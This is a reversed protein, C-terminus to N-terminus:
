EHGAAEASRAPNRRRKVTTLTMVGTAEQGLQPQIRDSTLERRRSTAAVHSTYTPILAPSIPPFPGGNKPVQLATGAQWYFQRSAHAITFANINRAITPTARVALGDEDDAWTLLLALKPSVPFRMETSALLGSNLPWSRPSAARVSQPWVVLPEDSTALIPEDFRLLTWHMSGVISAVREIPNMMRSLREEPGAMSTLASDFAADFEQNSIRPINRALAYADIKTRLEQRAGPVAETVANSQFEHWRLGRVAQVAVLEAVRSKDSVDLPWRESIERLVPLGASEGASLSREVDDNPTGDANQRRYFNTRVGLDRPSAEFTRDSRVDRALIMNESSWQRLYAKPIVHHRQPRAM